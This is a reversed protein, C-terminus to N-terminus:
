RFLECELLHHERHTSLWVAIQLTVEPPCELVRGNVFRVV